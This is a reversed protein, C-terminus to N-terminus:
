QMELQMLEVCCAVLNIEQDMVSAAKFQYDAIILIAQPVDSPKLFSLLQDYIKRFLLAPDADVNSGIWNRMAKFDKEKIATILSKIDVDSAGAAVVEETIAGAAALRQLENLTKRYDPAFRKMVAYLGEKTFEVGEQKLIGVLRKGFGGMMAREEDKAVNMDVLSFRSKIPDIIKSPYNLTAIFTCNASYEEIASRLAAQLLPTAHDFEDLIVCKMKADGFSVSTAFSAINTRLVDIGRENSVNIIMWDMGLDNCLAKAATTKGIGASGVLMLPQFSGEEIIRKFTGKIREPLICDEITKPRYKEVWVFQNPNFDITESM